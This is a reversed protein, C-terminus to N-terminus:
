NSQYEPFLLSQFTTKTELNYSIMQQNSFTHMFDNIIVGRDVQVYGISSSPHEIKEILQIPMADTFDISFIFYYSHYSFEYFGEETLSNTTNNSQIFEQQNANVAFAFIGHDVSVTMAKHDWLAESWAWQWSLRDEEPIGDFIAETLLYTQIVDSQGERVDYASLKMGKLQGNDDADYGFGLIHDEGWPHQYTDFGPLVIEERIAPNTPNTLDIIYLPDTRLFTVVYALPGQFRVSMISENPKGLGEELLGTIGFTGDKLDELIYLRNTIM